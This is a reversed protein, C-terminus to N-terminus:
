LVSRGPITRVVSLLEMIGGVVANGASINSIAPVVKNDSVASVDWRCKLPAVSANKLCPPCVLPVSARVVNWLCM